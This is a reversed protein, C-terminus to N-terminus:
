VERVVKEIFILNLINYRSFRNVFNTQLLVGDKAHLHEKLWNTTKNMCNNFCSILPRAKGDRCPWAPQPFYKLLLYVFLIYFYVPRQESIQHLVSVREAPHSGSRSESWASVSKSINWNPGSLSLKIHTSSKYLGLQLYKSEGRLIFHVQHKPQVTEINEVLIYWIFFHGFAFFYGLEDHLFYFFNNTVKQTFFTFDM